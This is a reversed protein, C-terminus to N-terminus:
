TWVEFYFFSALDISAAIERGHTILLSGLQRPHYSDTGKVTVNSEIPDTKNWLEFSKTVPGTSYIYAVCGRTHVYMSPFMLSSCREVRTLSYIVRAFGRGEGDFFRM